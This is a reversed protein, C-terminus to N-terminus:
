NGKRLSMPWGDTSWIYIVNRIFDTGSDIPTIEEGRAPLGPTMHALILLLEKFRKELQAYKLIRTMRWISKKWNWLQQNGPAKLMQDM